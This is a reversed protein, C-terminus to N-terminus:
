YNFFFEYPITAGINNVNMRLIYQAICVIVILVYYFHSFKQRTTTQNKNLYLTEKVGKRISFALMNPITIILYVSFLFSVRSFMKNEFAFFYMVSEILFMYLGIKNNQFFEQRRRVRCAAFWCIMILLVHVLWVYIQSTIGIQEVSSIYIQYSTPIVWAIPKQLIDYLMSLIFGSGLLILFRKQTLQFKFIFYLPLFILASQHIVMAVAIQLFYYLPKKGWAYPIAGMAILSSISSPTLNLATQYFGLTLYLFISLWWDPSQRRILLALFAILLVSNAVTVTQSSQSIFSLLKNYIKYTYEADWYTYSQSTYIQPFSLNKVWDFIWQYQATDAGVNVSRLAAFLFLVFCCIIFAIKTFDCGLKKLIITYCGLLLFMGLIILYWIM